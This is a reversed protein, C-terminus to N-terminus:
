QEWCSIFINLGSRREAEHIFVRAIGGSQSSQNVICLMAGPCGQHSDWLPFRQQFPLMNHKFTNPCFFAWYHTIVALNFWIFFLMTAVKSWLVPWCNLQCLRVNTHTVDKSSTCLSSSGALLALLKKLIHSPYLTKLDNRSFPTQQLDTIKFSSFVLYLSKRITRLCDTICSCTCVHELPHIKRRVPELQLLNKNCHFQPLVAEAWVQVSGGWRRKCM